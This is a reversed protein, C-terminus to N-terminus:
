LLALLKAPKDGFKLGDLVLERINRSGDFRRALEYKLCAGHFIGALPDCFLGRHRLQERGFHGDSDAIFGHLDVAAVPEDFVIRDLLEIAIDLQAGNALAGAFDLAHHDRALQQLFLKTFPDSVSRTSAPSRRARARPALRISDSRSPPRSNNRSRKGRVPRAVVIPIVPGGPTPLLVSTLAKIRARRSFPFVTATRATSGLLENELPAMRPSRM